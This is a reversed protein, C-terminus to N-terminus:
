LQHNPTVNLIWAVLHLALFLSAAFALWNVLRAARSAVPESPARPLSLFLLLGGFAMLKKRRSRSARDARATRRNTDTEVHNAVRDDRNRRSGGINAVRQSWRFVCLQRWGSSRGRLRRAM